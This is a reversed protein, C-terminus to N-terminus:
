NVTKPTFRLLRKYIGALLDAPLLRTGVRIACNIIFQLPSIYGSRVMRAFLKTEHRLYTLGSRRKFMASGCRVHVLTHPLNVFRVGSIVMRHFMDWDEVGRIPQYGGARQYVERRFMLTVHNFPQRWRGFRIIDNHGTPVRRLRNTDRPQVDFEEVFGGVVDADGQLLLPLQRAFRDPVSIDDADMVAVIDSQAAQIAINRAHGLGRNESLRLARVLVNLSAAALADELKFGIPGDVVIVIEGPMLTQALVSDVADRFQAPDDARYLSMVVSFNSREIM